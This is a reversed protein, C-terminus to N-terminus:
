EVIKIVSGPYATQIIQLKPRLQRVIDVSTQDRDNKHTLNVRVEAVYSAKKDGAGRLLGNFDIVGATGIWSQYNIIQSEKRLIHGIERVVKDTEEIPTSEPMDLTINITNKNDKPLMGMEVAFLSTAGGVGQPRIFQWAPQLLAVILMLIVSIFLLNRSKPKDVFPEIISRYFLHLKDKKDFDDLEKGEGAKLWKQAMWPTVIYAVLVSAFMTVPVNFIIPFFYPAPMGTLMLMSIFVLMIAFTALNTPSGIENVALVTALKKNAPRINKYHRHINEIVVIPADVLMGLSLILSFLTLRNITLGFLYDAGLTIALILPISIGVILAEKTGLALLTIIFVVVVAMGLNGILDNVSDDAKQGDNRTIIVQVDDPIFQEQMQKVRALIDNAVVVSNSGQKKAIALTVAPMEPDHAKNFRPDGAGFAFRSLQKRETAPGDIVTAVDEIYILQGNYNGVVTRRVDDVSHVFGSVFLDQNKGQQVFTGLAMAVNSAQIMAQAHDISVGFAQLREPNLEVRIERDRGGKVYSVSAAELSRMGELMRDAIRKLAYDDYNESALTVTVIPVDDVDISKIVPELADVPLRDRQGLIRDYLKVLSREKDEGVEFQVTVVAMSNMAVGYSHDVKTIEGVIAELPNLVLQEIEQSSAGPLAVYINAGPVVIQPNEERPTQTVAIFGLLFCAIIVLITLKSSCFYNVIKGSVNYEIASM